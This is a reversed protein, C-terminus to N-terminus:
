RRPEGGEAGAEGFGIGGVRDRLNEAEAHRYHWQTRSNTHRLVRQIMADSLGWYEAHTAWSHRLSQFTLGEVGARRGLIKLRNLPKAAGTGGTWPGTGHTNPFMWSRDPPGAPEAVIWAPAPRRGEPARLHALDPRPPPDIRHAMWDRLVEALAAPIPVPQAAAETKLGRGVRAKVLIMRGMLDIDEARLYLAENRRLGTYAVTAVLAHLRRARWGPWGAKDRADRRALDLVRAIEARSHVGPSKPTVGRVWSRRLAFPNMRLYGEAVALSCAARINSLLARTTNPHAGPPRSAVFRAVTATTLDATTAVDGLQELLGLTQRMRIFTPRARMPPEYLALVRARFDAFPIPVADPNYAPLSM